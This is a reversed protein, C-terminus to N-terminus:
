VSTMTMSVYVKAFFLRSTIIMCNYTPSSKNAKRKNRLSGSKSLFRLHFLIILTAMLYLAGAGRVSFWSSYSNQKRSTQSKTGDEDKM